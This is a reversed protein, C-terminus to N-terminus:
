PFYQTKCTNSQLPRCLLMGQAVQSGHVQTPGNLLAAMVGLYICNCSQTKDLELQLMPGEKARGCSWPCLVQHVCQM